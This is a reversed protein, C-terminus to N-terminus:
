KMEEMASINNIADTMKLAAAVEAVDHVRVANAGRCVAACCAAVTGILRNEVPEDLVAGIFRKRSPGILVPFGMDRLTPIARILALSEATSVGFGIGPDTMLQDDRVGAKRAIRISETLYEVADSVIDGSKRFFGSDFANFMVILGAGAEAAVAAIDPDRRCGWIDNIISAGAEVAASAVSAKWTDVSIPVSISQKLARIVPIIRATEEMADVPTHGPRTSEGGVDVIDAGAEVMQRAHNVAEDVAYYRGGDSFSDPTVNLIGMVFTKKYIPLQYDGARFLTQNEARCVSPGCYPDVPM